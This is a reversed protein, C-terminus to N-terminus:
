IHNCLGFVVQRVQMRPVVRFRTILLKPFFGRIGHEDHFGPHRAQRRPHGHFPNAPLANNILAIRIIPLHIGRAILQRIHVAEFKRDNLVRLNNQEFKDIAFEVQKPPIGADVHKGGQAGFFCLALEFQSDGPWVSPRRVIEVPIRGFGRQAFGKAVPIHANGQRVRDVALLDILDHIM